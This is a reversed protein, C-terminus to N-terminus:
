PRQSGHHQVENPKEKRAEILLTALAAIYKSQRQLDVTNIEKLRSLDLNDVLDAIKVATAMGLVNAGVRELYQLYPEDKRKTIADLADCVTESFGEGRLMELTWPTDEIVDHLVAVIRAEDTQMQMMVRLPHLIYPAGGKDVQGAHADLAIKIARDLTTM